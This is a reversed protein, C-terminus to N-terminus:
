CLVHSVVPYFLLQPHWFCSMILTALNPLKRSSIYVFLPMFPNVYESQWLISLNLVKNTDTKKFTFYAQKTKSILAAHTETSNQLANRSNIFHLVQSTNCQFTNNGFFLIGLVNSATCMSYQKDTTVQSCCFVFRQQM